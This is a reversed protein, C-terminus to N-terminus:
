DLPRHKAIGPEHEFAPNDFSGPAETFPTNKILQQYQAHASYQRKQDYHTHFIMWQPKHDDAVTTTADLLTRIESKRKVQRPSQGQGPVPFIIFFM